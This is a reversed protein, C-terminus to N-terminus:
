RGEFGFNLRRSVTYDLTVVVFHALGWIFRNLWTRQRAHYERTIENSDAIESDIFRRIKAAFAADDIRLMMELNLYLSRMDFNASGIHVANDIVILKTHLRAPQYEYIQVDRKLLRWYTHRTAGITARNDSKAATVIRVKGRAAILYIRSLLARSPAFYAAIMDLRVAHLMDKRISKVWPNLRYTPGGFLWHLKGGTSSYRNLIRRLRSIRAHPTKTWALLSDFYKALRETSPGDIRLGLDRWANNETSGFYEDAVNFGGIIVSKEDALALKQHNRLLYRRGWRPVFRHFHAHSDILPKFFTEESADTGFGDVLLSVQVGRKQAAILADRVRLGSVDDKFIYYLLRLSKKAGEVLSILEDLRDPGDPLLILRNGEINASILRKKAQPDAKAM